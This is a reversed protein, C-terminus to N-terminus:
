ERQHEEIIGELSELHYKILDHNKHSKCNLIFTNISIYLTKKIDNNTPTTKEEKEFMNISKIVNEISTIVRDKTGIELYFECAIMSSECAENFNNGEYCRGAQAVYLSAETNYHLIKIKTELSDLSKKIDAKNSQELQKLKKDFETKNSKELQELKTTFNDVMQKQIFSTLEKLNQRQFYQALIPIIIGVVSIALILKLWASDYFDNIQSVIEQKENLRFELQRLTENKSVSDIKFQLLELKETIHKIHLTDIM